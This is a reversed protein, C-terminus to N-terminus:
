GENGAVDGAGEVRTVNGESQKSPMACVPPQFLDVVEQLIEVVGDSIGDLLGLLAELEQARARIEKAIEPRAVVLRLAVQDDRVALDARVPGLGSFEVGVTVHCSDGHRSGAGGRVHMSRALM